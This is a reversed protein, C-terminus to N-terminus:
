NGGVDKEKCSMERKREVEDGRGPVTAYAWVGVLFVFPACILVCVFLLGWEFM